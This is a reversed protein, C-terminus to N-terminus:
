TWRGQLCELAGPGCAAPVCARCVDQLARDARARVVYVYRVRCCAPPYRPGDEWWARERTREPESCLYRQHLDVDASHSVLARAYRREGGAFWSEGERPPGTDDDDEDERDDDHTIPPTNDWDGIRGIRPASPRGWTSPPPDSPPGGGLTNGRGNGSM